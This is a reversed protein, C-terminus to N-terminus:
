NMVRGMFDAPVRILQLFGALCVLDAEASRCADFIRESFAELSGAEKRDVVLTALGARRARVLGFADAKNAVVLAIQANLRRDAIQDILNQLTTGNGSLLVALRIAAM